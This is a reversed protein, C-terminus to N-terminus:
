GRMPELTRPVVIREHTDLIKKLTAITFSNEEIERLDRPSFIQFSGNPYTAIVTDASWNAGYDIYVNRVSYVVNWGKAKAMGNMLQAIFELKEKM